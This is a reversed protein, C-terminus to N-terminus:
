ELVMWASLLAYKYNRDLKPTQVGFFDDIYNYINITKDMNFKTATFNRSVFEEAILSREYSVKHLLALPYYWSAITDKKSDLSLKAGIVSPSFQIILSNISTECWNTFGGLDSSNPIILKDYKVFVPNQKTGEMVCYKISNKEFCFGLVAM